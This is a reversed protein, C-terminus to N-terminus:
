LCGIIRSNARDVASTDLSDLYIQTTTESDHDMGVSIVSLPVGKARAASAWSHRACYLTLPISIDAMGAVEKLSRNISYAINRYATRLNKHRASLIPLLYGADNAPYKNVISQMEKTWAIRLLQGTKARRYTVYGHALDTTRLFAMDIFSMGRLYFSMMFMDRAYEVRPCDTLDLGKIRRIATIPLARKVTKAIGTYVHRFPRTNEIIGEEVARNYTARLVRLYFSTTNPVNGRRQLYHEYDEVMTPTLADLLIDENRRFQRFSNLVIAYIEASRVRDRQNLTSIVSQMFGFLSCRRIYLRFETIVDDASYGGYRQELRKVISNLRVLDLRIHEFVPQVSSRREEATQLVSRLTLAEWEAPMLRFDTLLQRICREHIIQYYVSGEKDNVSSPRFKVKISAM